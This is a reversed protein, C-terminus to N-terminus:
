FVVMRSLIGNNMTPAKRLLRQTDIRQAALLRLPKMSAGFDIWLSSEEPLFFIDM